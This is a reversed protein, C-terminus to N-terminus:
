FTITSLGIVTESGNNRPSIKKSNMTAESEPPCKGGTIKGL